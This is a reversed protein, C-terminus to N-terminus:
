AEPSLYKAILISPFIPYGVTTHVEDKILVNLGTTEEIMDQLYSESKEFTM